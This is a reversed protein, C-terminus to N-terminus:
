NILNNKQENLIECVNKLVSVINDAMEIKQPRIIEQEGLVDDIQRLIDERPETAPRQINNDNKVSLYQNISEFNPVDHLFINCSEPQAPSLPSPPQPLPFGGFSNNNNKFYDDENRLVQLRSQLEIDLPNPAKSILKSALDKKGFDIERVLSGIIPNQM